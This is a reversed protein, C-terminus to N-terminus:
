VKSLYLVAHTLLGQLTWLWSYINMLVQSSLNRQGAHSWISLSATKSPFIKKTWGGLIGQTGHKSSTCHVASYGPHSMTFERPDLLHLWWGAGEGWREEKKTCHSIYLSNSHDTFSHKLKLTCLLERNVVPALANFNRVENRKLLWTIAANVPM